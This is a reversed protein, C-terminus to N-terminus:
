KQLNENLQNRIDNLWEHQSPQKPHWIEYSLEFHHDSRYIEKLDYKQDILSENWPFYINGEYKKYIVTIYLTDFTIWKLAEEYLRAGGIIFVDSEERYFMHLIYYFAKKLDNVFYFGKECIIGHVSRDIVINLRNRLPKKLSLYTNYGMICISGITKQQFYHLDEPYNWPIHRDSGIVFSPSTFATILHIKMILIFYSEKKTM